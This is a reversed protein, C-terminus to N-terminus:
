TKLNFIQLSNHMLNTEQLQPNLLLCSVKGPGCVTECDHEADFIM